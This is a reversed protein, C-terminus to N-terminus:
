SGPGFWGRYNGQGGGEGNGNGEQQGVEEAADFTGPMSRTSRQSRDQAGSTQDGERKTIGKRCHPCTDHELLWAKVCQHHFWHKCPLMTVEEGVGVDDMCISCEATHEPGLMDETVKKRPLAEIDSQTAPGPANSSATQEMLQSVIRDLGEQSYVFDGMQGNGPPLIGMSSFLQFFPNIPMQAAEPNNLAGGFPHAHVSGPPAGLAAMLGTMVNAIDDVPEVRLQPNNADRPYLRAGTHFTYRGIRPQSGDPGQNRSENFASQDGRDQDRESETSQRQQSEQGQDRAQGQGPSRAASGVLGNLLSMFGGISAPGAQLGQPSVNRTITAQLNFRGPATQTFHYNSIDGEEPDDSAWPNHAPHSHHPADPMSDNDDDGFMVSDRPDNNEEIIETFDSGCEPCTLGREDRYWEDACEHCFMMDRHAPRQPQAAAQDNSSDM